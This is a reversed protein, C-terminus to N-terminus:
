CLCTPSLRSCISILDIVSDGLWGNDVIGNIRGLPNNMRVSEVSARIDVPTEESVSEETVSIEEQDYKYKKMTMNLNRRSVWVRCKMTRANKGPKKREEVRKEGTSSNNKRIKYVRPCKSGEM